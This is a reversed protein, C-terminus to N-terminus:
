IESRIREALEDAERPKNTLQIANNCELSCTVAVNLEHDIVEDGYRSRMAKTNPIRHALQPQCGPLRAFRECHVCVWDDREFVAERDYM